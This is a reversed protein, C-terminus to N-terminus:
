LHKELLAVARKISCAYAGNGMFNLHVGDRSFVPVEPNVFGRHKWVRIIAHGAAMKSITKNYEEVKTNYTPFPIGDGSRPLVTGLVIKELRFSEVLFDIYAFVQKALKHPTCLPNCLDNSGIDLFVHHPTVQQFVRTLSASTLSKEQRKNHLTLGGVGHFSIQFRSIDFGLNTSLRWGVIKSSHPFHVGQEIRTLTTELTHLFEDVRRTFSHGIVLVRKGEATEAAM